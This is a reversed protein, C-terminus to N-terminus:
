FPLLGKALNVGLVKSFLFYIGVPFLVSTLVNAVWKNRNFYVMLGLLSVPTALLFGVPEFLAFYFAIWAVVGAIVLLHRNDEPARDAQDAQDALDPPDAVGSKGAQLTELLLWAASVLLGIGILYPFAKPGLPDGIQLSPILSAGYFYLLALVVTCVVIIRDIFL